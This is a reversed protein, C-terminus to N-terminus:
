LPLLSTAVTRVSRLPFKLTANSVPSYVQTIWYAPYSDSVLFIVTLFSSFTSKETESSLSYLPFRSDVM